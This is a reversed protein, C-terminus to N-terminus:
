PIGIGTDKVKIQAFQKQDELTKSIIVSIDGKNTYKIANSLLHDIVQSLMREDANISLDDERIILQFKLGKEKAASHFQNFKERVIHTLNQRAINKDIQNAELHSLDLILNVSEKLRMGSKLLTHAMEKFEPDEIENFLTEAYGLIGVLPTRLEHSINALFISKVRNADEAKEKAAILDEMMKKRETIDAFVGFSGTYMGTKNFIPAASVLTSIITGDKRVLKREYIESDGKKRNKIKLSHNELEDPPILQQFNMNMLESVSYGTMEAMRHNVLSTKENLDAVLIGEISTEFLTRFKEESEILAEEIIKRETIDSITGIMKVPQDASDYVVECLGHVWREEGDSKRVIKYEKDFRARGELVQKSFYNAMTERWEPHILSIWGEVSHVYKEDIGLIHDLIASSHWIGKPIDLVYTGLRAVAQTEKLLRESERIVEERQKRETIDEKVALYNTITGNSDIILQSIAARVWYLEGNKKKNHFEGRGNRKRLQYNAM